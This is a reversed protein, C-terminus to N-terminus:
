QEKKRLLELILVIVLTACSSYAVRLAMGIPDAINFHSLLVLLTNHLLIATLAYMFFSLLGIAKPKAAPGYERLKRPAYMKLLAPRIFAILVLTAANMGPTNSFIDVLLGCVFGWLLASSPPEDIDLYLVMYIYLYPTAYGFLNLQNLVFVQLAVLSLMFLIRKLTKM